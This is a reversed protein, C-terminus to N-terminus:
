VHARGIQTTTTEDPLVHIEVFLDSSGRDWLWRALEKRDSHELHKRLRERLNRAEGLYLNGENKFFFIYIGQSRPIQNIDLSAVPFVTVQTAAMVRSVIEPRLGRRKRLSLATFRYEFGSFGPVIAQALRDFEAALSPDCIIRDLTTKEKQELYRAAIEAAFRYSDQNKLRIRKTTPHDELARVKRLNYLCRNLESPSATTGRQHCAAIFTANLAPDAIVKDASFGNRTELFAALVIDKM